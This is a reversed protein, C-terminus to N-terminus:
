LSIGGSMLNEYLMESHRIERLSIYFQEGMTERCSMVVEKTFMTKLACASERMRELPAHRLYDEM